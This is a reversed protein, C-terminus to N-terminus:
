NVPLKDTRMEFGSNSRQAIEASWRTLFLRTASVYYATNPDNNRRATQDIWKVGNLSLGVHYVRNNDVHKDPSRDESSIERVLTTVSAHETSCAYMSFISLLLSPTLLFILFHLSYWPTASLRIVRPSDALEMSIKGCQTAIVCRVIIGERALKRQGLAEWNNNVYVAGRIKEVSKKRKGDVIMRRFNSTSIMHSDRAARKWTLM